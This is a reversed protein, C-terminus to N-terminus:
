CLVGSPLVTQAELTGDGQMGASAYVCINPTNYNAIVAFKMGNADCAYDKLLDYAYDLIVDVAADASFKSIGAGLARFLTKVIEGADINVTVPTENETFPAKSLGDAFDMGRVLVFPYDTETPKEAAKAGAPIVAATLLMAACILLSILKKIFNRRRSIYTNNYCLCHVFFLSNKVRGTKEIVCFVVSKRKNEAFIKLFLESFSISM